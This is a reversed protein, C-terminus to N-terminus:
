MEIVYHRRRQAGYVCFFPQVKGYGQWIKAACYKQWEALLNFRYNEIMLKTWQAELFVYINMWSLNELSDIKMEKTWLESIM